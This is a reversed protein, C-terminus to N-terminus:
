PAGVAIRSTRLCMLLALCDQAEDLRAHALLSWHDGTVFKVELLL